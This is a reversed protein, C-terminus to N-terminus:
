FTFGISRLWNECLRTWASLAPNDEALGVGHPGDQFIHLRYDLVFASLGIRNLWLAVPEGEHPAKGYYGGGPCVIMAAHPKDSTLIYPALSPVKQGFEPQYAPTKEDWLKIM